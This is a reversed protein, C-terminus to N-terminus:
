KASNYKQVLSPKLEVQAPDIKSINLINGLDIDDGLVKSFLDVPSQNNLKKRTLSNIHSFLLDFFSQDLTNFSYGKPLVRRIHEHNNECFGKQYPASPDCYFVKIGYKEIAAPNSFETGNDLLWVSPFLKHFTEAGLSNYFNDVIQTVSRSNNHDRLIGIQFSWQVWSLTLICKGGKTGEVTDGQLIAEDPHQSIYANFDDYTRGIRCKKDVKVEVSKKKRPRMRVQRPMDIPKASILGSKILIYAQRESIPIEDSCTMFIHHVSQGLKIRPSLLNDIERIEDETLNLGSRSESRVSEAQKQAEHSLYLYKKLPCRNYERCGNCVYPASQLRLCNEEEYDKCTNCCLTKRCSACRKSSCIIKSSACIAQKKCSRRHICRNHNSGSCYTDKFYRNTRIERSITSVSVGLHNAISTFSSRQSLSAQIYARDAETLKHHTTM